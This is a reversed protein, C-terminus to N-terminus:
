AGRAPDEDSGPAGPASGVEAVDPHALLWSELSTVTIGCRGGGLSVPRLGGSRVVDVVARRGLGSFRVVEAFPIAAIPECKRRKAETRCPPTSLASYYMRPENKAPIPPLTTGHAPPQDPERAPEPRISAADVRGSKMRKPSGSETSLSVSHWTAVRLTVFIRSDAGSMPRKTLM